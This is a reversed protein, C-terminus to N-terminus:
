AVVFRRKPSRQASLSIIKETGQEYSGLDNDAISKRDEEEAVVNARQLSIFCQQM